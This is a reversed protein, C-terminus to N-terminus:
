PILMGLARSSDIQQCLQSLKRGAWVPADNVNLGLLDPIIQRDQIDVALRLLFSKIRGLRDSNLRRGRFYYLAFTSVLISSIPLQQHLILARALRIIRKVEGAPQLKNLEILISKFHVADTPMWCFNDHNPDTCPIYYQTRDNSVFTPTLDFPLIHNAGPGSTLLPPKYVVSPPDIRGARLIDMLMRYQLDHPVLSYSAPFINVHAARPVTPNNRLYGIICLWDEDNHEGIKRPAIAKATSGIRIVDINNAKFWSRVEAVKRKRYHPCYNARARAFILSLEDTDSMILSFLHSVPIDIAM